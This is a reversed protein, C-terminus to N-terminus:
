RISQSSGPQNQSKYIPSQPKLGTIQPQLPKPTPKPVSTPVVLQKPAPTTEQVLTPLPKPAPTPPSKIKLSPSTSKPRTSQIPLHNSPLPIESIPAATFPLNSPDPITTKISPRPNRKPTTRPAAKGGVFAVWTGDWVENEYTLDQHYFVRYLPPQTDVFESVVSCRFWKGKPGEDGWFIWWTSEVNPKNAKM